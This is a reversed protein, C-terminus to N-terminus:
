KLRAGLKTIVADSLKGIAADDLAVTGAPIAALAAKVAAAVQEATPFAKRYAGLLADAFLLPHEKQDAGTWTARYIQQSHIARAADAPLAALKADLLKSIEDLTPMDDEPPTHALRTLRDWPFAGPDGHDNGPIHMHGCHGHWALWQADTFRVGNAGYSAPYAKFPPAVLPIGLGDSLPKAVKAWLARLVTDDANPWYYAGKPGSPDCTGALEIQIAHAGNTPAMGAAHKLAYAARDLAIHQYVQVDKGPVAVVTLHPEYQSPYNPVGFGETTHWVVKPPCNVQWAFGAEHMPKRTADPLWTLM